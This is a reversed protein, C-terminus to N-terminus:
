SSTFADVKILFNSIPMKFLCILTRVDKQQKTQTMPRSWYWNNDRSWLASEIWELLMISYFLLLLANTNIIEVLCCSHFCCDWQQQECVYVCVHACRGESSIVVVWIFFCVNFNVFMGFIRWDILWGGDVLLCPVMTLSGILSWFSGVVVWCCFTHAGLHIGIFGLWM